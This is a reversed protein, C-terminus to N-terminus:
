KRLLPEAQGIWFIQDRQLLYFLITLTTYHPFLQLRSGSIPPMFIVETKEREREWKNKIRSQTVSAAPNCKFRFEDGCFHWFLISDTITQFSSYLWNGLIWVEWLRPLYIWRDLKNYRKCWTTSLKSNLYLIPSPYFALFVTINCFCHWHNLVFIILVNSQMAVQCSGNTGTLSLILWKAEQTSAGKSYQPCIISPVLPRNLRPEPTQALAEQRRLM